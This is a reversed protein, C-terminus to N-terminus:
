DELQRKALKRLAKLRAGEEFDAECAKLFDEVEGREMADIDEPSVGKRPDKAKDKKKNGGKKPGGKRGDGDHDLPDAKVVPAPAAKKAPAELRELVEFGHLKLTPVHSQMLVELNGDENPEYTHGDITTTTWSKERTMTKVNM